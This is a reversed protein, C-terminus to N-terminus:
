IGMGLLGQIYFMDDSTLDNIDPLEPTVTALVAKNCFSLLRKYNKLRVDAPLLTSDSLQINLLEFFWSDNSFPDDAFEGLIQDFVVFKYLDQPTSYPKGMYVLGGNGIRKSNCEAGFYEHSILKVVTAVFFGLRTEEDKHVTKYKSYVDQWVEPSMTGAKIQADLYDELFQVLKVRSNFEFLEREKSEREEKEKQARLEAQEKALNALRQDINNM